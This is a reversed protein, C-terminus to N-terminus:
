GNSDGPTPRARRKKQRLGRIAYVEVSVGGAKPSAKLYRVCARRLYADARSDKDCQGTLVTAGHWILARDLIAKALNPRKAKKTM